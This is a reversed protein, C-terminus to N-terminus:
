TVVIKTRSALAFHALLYSSIGTLFQACLLITPHEPCCGVEVPFPYVIETIKTLSWTSSEVPHRQGFSSIAFYSFTPFLFVLAVEAM